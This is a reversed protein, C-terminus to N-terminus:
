NNLITTRLIMGCYERNDVNYDVYKYINYEVAKKLLYLNIEHFLQTHGIEPSGIHAIEHIAVYLLENLPQIKYKKRDRICFVLEEGKNVSYSTYESTTLTESIKVYPLREKIIRIYGIYKNDEPTPTTNNSLIKNLLKDLTEMIKALTNAADKADILDNVIYSKNDYAIVHKIKAKYKYTYIIISIM